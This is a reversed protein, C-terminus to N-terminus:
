GQVLAENRLVTRPLTEPKLGAGSGREEARHPTFNRTEPKLFQMTLNMKSSFIENVTRDL